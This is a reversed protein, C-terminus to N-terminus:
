KVTHVLECLSVCKLRLAEAILEIGSLEGATDASLVDTDGAGALGRLRKHLAEARLRRFSVADASMEDYIAELYAYFMAREELVACKARDDGAEWLEAYLKEAEANWIRAAEFWQENTEAEAAEGAAESHEPCATLSAVAEGATLMCFAEGSPLGTKGFHGAEAAADDAENTKSYVRNSFRPTASVDNGYNFTVVASNVVRARTVEEETVITSYEFKLTEGQALSKAAAISEFGALSDYVALDKLDSGSDNTLTIVYDITEGLEYYEGNAPGHAETKMVGLGNPEDTAGERPFYLTFTCVNSKCVPEGEWSANDYGYYCVSITVSGSNVPDEPTDVVHTYFDKWDEGIPHFTSDITYDAENLATEKPGIYSSPNSVLIYDTNGNYWYEGETYLPINGTNTLTHTVNVKTEDYSGDLENVYIYYDFLDHVEISLKLAPDQLIMPLVETMTHSPDRKCTYTKIGEETATPEKTVVGEDWDHGLPKDNGTDSHAGCRSCVWYFVGYHTCDAYGTYVKTAWEHGLAPIAETKRAGCSCTYVAQGPNTCTPETRSVEKWNHTHPTEALACPLLSLLMLLALTFTLFRKM